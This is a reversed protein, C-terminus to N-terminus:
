HSHSISVSVLHNTFTANAHVTKTLASSPGCQYRQNSSSGKACNNCMADYIQMQYWPSSASQKVPADGSIYSYRNSSGPNVAKTCHGDNNEGDTLMICVKFAGPSSGNISELLTECGVQWVILIM